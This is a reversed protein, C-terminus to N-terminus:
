VEYVLRDGELVAYAIRARDSGAGDIKWGAGSPILTMRSRQRWWQDVEKPLTVWVRRDSRVRAIDALLRKYTDLARPSSVYDPHALFSMLGHSALIATMQQSWLAGSYDGLIHFVSYDETATIPLETIGGPLFYPMVTCCGGRQPELRAVNPVTMDYSIHLDQFWDINRYLVPSRFGLSGYQEIYRNIKGARELFKERGRFLNGDHSLGHVNLEFGRERISRLFDQPVEYRQEPVVQFSAKIGFEEDIDMLRWCFDRGAATEVDHTVIACADYGEPWFWIFPMRDAGLTRMALAILREFFVDVTRDLPWGPFPIADWDSLYAKQLHKRLGVPLSPRLWYYVDRVFTEQIWSRWTPHDAYREYRLNDAVQSIDFPLTVACGDHQIYKSVDALPGAASSQLKGRTSRGYCVVGEGFAFYGNRGELDGAANFISFNPAPRYHEFVAPLQAELAATASATSTKYM